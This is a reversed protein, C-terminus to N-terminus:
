LTSCSKKFDSPTQNTFKKFTTNFTTKSNFGAEFAVAILSYQDMKANLLLSKAEEVRYKNIFNYFNMNFGSNIIYSLKHPSTEFLEALNLLNLNSNLYPKKNQMLQSLESKFIILEEDSVIKKLSGDIESETNLSIIEKIKEEKFPYIEKQRMCHFASYFIAILIIVNLALNLREFNFFVNYLIIISVCVLLGVAIRELWTLDIENTQSSYLMVFKKHKRIMFYSATIYFFTQGLMLVLLIYNIIQYHSISFAYLLAIYIIPLIFHPFIIKKLQLKPNSYFLVIFYFLIPTFYQFGRFFIRWKQNLEIDSILLIIEDIWFSAWLLFLIGFLRNAIKNARM